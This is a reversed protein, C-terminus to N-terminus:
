LLLKVRNMPDVGKPADSYLLVGNVAFGKVVKQGGNERIMFDVFANALGKHTAHKGVLIHAPNLLPDDEAAEFAEKFLTM